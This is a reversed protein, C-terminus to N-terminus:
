IVAEPRCIEGPEHKIHIEFGSLRTNVAFLHLGTIRTEPSIFSKYVNEPLPTGFLFPSISITSAYSGREPM